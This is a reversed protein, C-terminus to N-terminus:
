IRTFEVHLDCLARQTYNAEYNYRRAGEPGHKNEDIRIDDLRDLIRQIGLNAESRALPSGLCTHIGKGFALQTQGSNRDLRFENPSAFKRPDRRMASQLLM